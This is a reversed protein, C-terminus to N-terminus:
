CVRDSHQSIAPDSELARDVIPAAVIEDVRDYSSRQLRYWFMDSCVGSVATPEDHIREL